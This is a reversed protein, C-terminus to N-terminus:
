TAAATEDTALSEAAPREVAPQEAAPQEVMPDATAMVTAPTARATATLRKARAGPNKNTRRTPPRTQLRRPRRAPPSARFHTIPRCRLAMPGAAAMAMGGATRM